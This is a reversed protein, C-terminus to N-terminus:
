FDDKDDMNLFEFEFDDDDLYEDGEDDEDEYDEDDEDEDEDDEDEDEDEDRRSLFNKPRWRRRRVPREDEDEDDEDEYDEDDEEDEYDEDDEEDEYDEDDEEDEEDDDDDYGDDERYEHLKVALVVCVLILIVFLVIAAILIIKGNGELSSLFNGGGSGSSGINQKELKHNSISYLYWSGEDEEDNEDKIRLLYLDENANQQLFSADITIDDLDTGAPINQSSIINVIKMADGSGESDEPAAEEGAPEEPSAEGEAPVEEGGEEPSGEAASDEVPDLLDSRIFGINGNVEVQYWTNGDSGVTEGTVTVQAGSKVSSGVAAASTSPGKRVTANTIATASKVSTESVTASVESTSNEREVQEQTLGAGGKDALDSRIYGTTGNVSIQYWINGDSGTVEDLVTFTDGQSVGIVVASDTSASSRVNANNKMTIDEAHSVFSNAGSFFMYMAAVVGAAGYLIKRGTKEAAIKM